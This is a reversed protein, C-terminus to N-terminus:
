QALGPQRTCTTPCHPGSHLDLGCIAGCLGQGTSQNVGEKRPLRYQLWLLSLSLFFHRCLFCVNQACALALQLPRSQLPLWDQLSLHSCSLPGLLGPWEHPGSVLQRQKPPLAPPPALGHPADGAGFADSFGYVEMLLKNKQQYVHEKQPTQYFMSPQPESYDELLQMYALVAPVSPGPQAPACLSCGAGCRGPLPGPATWTVAM